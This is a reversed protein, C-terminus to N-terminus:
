AAARRRHGAQHRRGCSPSLATKPTAAACRDAYRLISAADDADAPSRTGRIGRDRIDQALGRLDNDPSRLPVRGAAVFAITGDADAVVINQMPAIWAQAAQVFSGVSQARMMALSAAMADNDTDLATWRLALVHRAGLADALTGADSIVPGHRTSRVQMRVEPGGRVRIVEQAV